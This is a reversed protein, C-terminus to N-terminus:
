EPNKNLDSKECIVCDYNQVRVNALSISRTRPNASGRFFFLIAHVILYMSHMGKTHLLFSELPSQQTIYSFRDYGLSRLHELTESRGKVIENSLIELYIVPHHKRLINEAGCLVNLEHGEVDLKIAGIKEALPVFDDLRHAQVKTSNGAAEKTIKSKGSNGREACFTVCGSHDSIASNEVTINSLNKCNLKLLMFSEYNPEFAIIREFHEALNVSFTGIHAGIDLFTGQKQIKPFDAKIRNITTPDFSGFLTLRLSVDDDSELYRPVALKESTKAERNAQLIKYVLGLLIYTLRERLSM